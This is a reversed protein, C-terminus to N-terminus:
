LVKSLRSIVKDRGLLAMAEFLSPGVTKGTLVYRLPHIIDKAKLGMSESVSRVEQEVGQHDFSIVAFREKLATLGKRVSENGLKLSLENEDYKIDDTFFFSGYTEIDPVTKFRDGIINM